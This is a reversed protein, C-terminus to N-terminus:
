SNNRNEIDEFHQRIQSDAENRVADYLPISLFYLQVLSGIVGACLNGIQQQIIAPFREIEEVWEPKEIKENKEM